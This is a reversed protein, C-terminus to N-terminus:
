VEQNEHRWNVGGSEFRIDLMGEPRDNPEPVPRPLGGIRLITRDESDHVYITGAMHNIQVEGLGKKTTEPPFHTKLEEFSFGRKKLQRILEDSTYKELDM